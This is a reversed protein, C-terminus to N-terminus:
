QFYDPGIDVGARATTLIRQGTSSVPLKAIFNDVITDTFHLFYGKSSPQYDDFLNYVTATQLSCGSSLLMGLLADFTTELSVYSVNLVGGLQNESPTTARSAHARIDLHALEPLRISRM